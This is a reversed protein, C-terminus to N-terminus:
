RSQVEKFLNLRSLVHEVEEPRKTGILMDLEKKRILQIGWNGSVNYARGKKGLRLGWGGYEGLADYHRVYVTSLEAWGFRKFSIHFPFFRVYIGDEKIVTELRLVIFLLTVLFAVISSAFLGGGVEDGATQWREYWRFAMFGDLGLLLVWLWWQRFRQQERFLVKHENM